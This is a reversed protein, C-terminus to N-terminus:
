GWSTHVRNRASAGMAYKAGGPSSGVMFIIQKGRYFDAVSQAAAPRSAMAGGVSFAAALGMVSRRTLNCEDFRPM